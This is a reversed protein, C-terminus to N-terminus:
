PDRMAEASGTTHRGPRARVQPRNLLVCASAEKKKSELYHHHLGHSACLAQDVHRLATAACKDTKLLDRSFARGEKGAFQQVSPDRRPTPQLIVKCGRTPAHGDMRMDPPMAVGPRHREGRKVIGGAIGLYNVIPEYIDAHLRCPGFRDAGSFRSYKM